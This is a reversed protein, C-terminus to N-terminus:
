FKINDINEPLIDALENYYDIEINYDNKLEIITGSASAYIPQEKGYYNSNWGLDLGNHVGSKFYQTIAIYNVPYRFM